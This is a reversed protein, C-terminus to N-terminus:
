IWVPTLDYEKSLRVLTFRLCFICDLLCRFLVLVKPREACLFYILSTSETKKEEEEANGLSEGVKQYVSKEWLFVIHLTGDRPLHLSDGLELRARREPTTSRAPPEGKRREEGRPHQNGPTKFLPRLWGWFRDNEMGYFTSFPHCARTLHYWPLLTNWSKM